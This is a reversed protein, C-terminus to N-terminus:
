SKDVGATKPPAVHKLMEKCAKECKRCEEACQKMHKDQPFRECEKACRACAEACPECILGAFPGGRAVIHSATACINACDQCTMLTTLHDKKGELVMHACHTACADCERQCDSCAKACVHMAESHHKHDGKAPGQSQASAAVFALACTAMTLASFQIRNM